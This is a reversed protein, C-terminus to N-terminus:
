LQEEAKRYAIQLSDAATVVTFASAILRTPRPSVVIGGLFGASIWMALCYPCILLEGIARRLGHGRAAEDVEGHGADGQFTTFPARITSGVRDKSLMRAMKHTAISILVLDRTQVQDPLSRRTARMWGGFGGCLAFFLGMLAAYGGLPREQDLSHGIFPPIDQLATTAV